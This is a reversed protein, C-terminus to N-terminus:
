ADGGSVFTCSGCFYLWTMRKVISFTFTQKNANSRHNLLFTIMTSYVSRPCTVATMRRCTAHHRWWISVNEANSAMKTPFEGTGPSNGACLGIVLLKSIKTSLRNLLCDHPQYNLVSGRGNNRWQLTWGGAITCGSYAMSIWQFLNTTVNVPKDYGPSQFNDIQCCEVVFKSLM